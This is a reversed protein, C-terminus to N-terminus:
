IRGNIQKLWKVFNIKQIDVSDSGKKVIRSDECISSVSSLLRNERRKPHRFLKVTGDQDGAAAPFLVVNSIHETRKKLESFAWPDPEFAYVTSAFNSLRCTFEGVNAGIDM